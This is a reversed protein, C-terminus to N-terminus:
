INYLLIIIYFRNCKTMFGKVTPLETVTRTWIHTIYVYFFVCTCCIKRGNVAFNRKLTQFLAMKVFIQAIFAIKQCQVMFITIEISGFKLINIKESKILINLIDKMKQCVRYIKYLDTTLEPVHM